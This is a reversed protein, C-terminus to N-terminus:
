HPHAARHTCANGPCRGGAAMAGARQRASLQRSGPACGCGQCWQAVRDGESSCTVRDRLGRVCHIAAAYRWFLVGRGGSWWMRDCRRSGGASSSRSRGTRCSAAAAFSHFRPGQQWGRRALRSVPQVPLPFLATPRTRGAGRRASPISARSELACALSDAHLAAHRRAASM